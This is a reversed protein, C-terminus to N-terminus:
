KLKPNNDLSLEDKIMRYAVEPPMSDDPIDDCPMDQTAYHSGYVNTFDEPPEVDEVHRRKVGAKVAPAM